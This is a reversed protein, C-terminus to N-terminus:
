EATTQRMTNKQHIRVIKHITKLKNNKKEKFQDCYLKKKFDLVVSIVIVVVLKVFVVAVAIEKIM